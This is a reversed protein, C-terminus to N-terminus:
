HRMSGTSRVTCPARSVFQCRQCAGTWLRLLDIAAGDFLIVPRSDGQQFYRTSRPLAAATSAQQMASVTRM